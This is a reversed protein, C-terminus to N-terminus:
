GFLSLVFCMAGLGFFLQTATATVSQCGLLVFCVDVSGTTCCSALDTASLVNIWVIVLPLSLIVNLRKGCLVYGRPLLASECHYSCVGEAALTLM